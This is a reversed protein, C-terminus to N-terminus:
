RKNGMDVEGAYQLAKRLRNRALFLRAKVTGRPSGVTRAISAEDLDLYYRLVVVARQKPPLARIADLVSQQLERQLVHAEPDCHAETSAPDLGASVYQRRSVAKLAGNVVIRFFWPTFPRKSDFQHIRLYANLFADAVIDEALHRDGTIAFAARIAPIQHRRVLTELGREDGGQLAIAAERDRWDDSSGTEGAPTAEVM